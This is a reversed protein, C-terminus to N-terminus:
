SPKSSMKSCPVTLSPKSTCSPATMVLPLPKAAVTVPKLRLSVSASMRALPLLAWASLASRSQRSLKTPMAGGTACASGAVATSSVSSDTDAAAPRSALSVKLRSPLIVAALKSLLASPVGSVAIVKPTAVASTRLPM